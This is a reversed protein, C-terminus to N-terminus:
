KDGQCALASSPTFLLYWAITLLVLEQYAFSDDWGLSSSRSHNPFFIQQPGFNRRIVLLFTM